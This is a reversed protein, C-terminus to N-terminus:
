RSRHEKRSKMIEDARRAMLPNSQALASLQAELEADIFAINNALLDFVKDVQSKNLKDLSHVLIKLGETHLPQAKLKELLTNQVELRLSDFGRLISSQAAADKWLGAPVKELALYPIFDDKSAILGIIDPLFPKLRNDPLATLIFHQYEGNGSSLMQKILRDNLLSRTHALIEAAVPGNVIHWLTHVTYVAGPVVVDQFSASTAGTIGDVKSSYVKVSRDIMDEAEYDKLMSRSDALIARLKQHDATTFLLHDFKTLPAHEPTKYDAFHGLLDWYVELDIPKCLSDSCVTTAVHASYLVPVNAQDSLLSVNLQLGKDTTYKM